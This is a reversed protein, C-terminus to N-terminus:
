LYIASDYEEDITIPSYNIENDELFLMLKELDRTYSDITNHSLGREIKLFLQFDRIANQWKM